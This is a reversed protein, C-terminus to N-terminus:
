VSVSKPTCKKATVTRSQRSFAQNRTKSPICVVIPSIEKTKRFKSTTRLFEVGPPNLNQWFKFFNCYLNFHCLRSSSQFLAFESELCGTKAATSTRPDWPEKRVTFSRIAPLLLLGCVIIPWRCMKSQIVLNKWFRDVNKPYRHEAYKYAHCTASFARTNLILDMQHWLLWTFHLHVRKCCYKKPEFVYM